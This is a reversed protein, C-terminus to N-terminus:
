KRIRHAGTPCRAGKAPALIKYGRTGVRCWQEYKDWKGKPCGILVWADGSRKYRFSAPDFSSKRALEEECFVGKIKRGRLGGMAPAVKRRSLIAILGLLGVGGIAWVQWPVSEDTKIKSTAATTLPPKAPPIVAPPPTTTTTTSPPTTSPGYPDILKDPSPTTPQVIPEVPLTPEPAAPPKPTSSVSIGKDIIGLMEVLRNKAENVTTADLAYPKDVNMEVVADRWASEGELYVDTPWLLLSPLDPDPVPIEVDDGVMLASTPKLTGYAAPLANLAVLLQDLTPKTTPSLAGSMTAFLM